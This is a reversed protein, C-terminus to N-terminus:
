NDVPVVLGKRLKRLQGKEVLQNVVQDIWQRSYGLERAIDTNLPSYGNKNHGRTIVDLVMQETDTM